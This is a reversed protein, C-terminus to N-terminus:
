YGVEQLDQGNSQCKENALLITFHLLLRLSAANVDKGALELVEKENEGMLKKFHNCLEEGSLEETPLSNKIRALKPVRERRFTKIKKLLAM